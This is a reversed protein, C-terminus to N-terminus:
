YPQSPDQPNRRWGYVPEVPTTAPLMAYAEAERNGQRVIDEMAKMWLAYASDGRKADGPNQSGKLCYAEAGKQFHRSFDDPIPDLFSGLSAIQPALMQYYAIIQWVPGAAGPLPFVRFGQSMPDVVTWTVTGDTKTTGEASNAPLLPAMTGTTGFGTVILLNGNADVMNLIPNQQVQAAVLPYFTVHAGPWTGYSLQNNYMWCIQGVPSWSMGTRSLQRRFTLQTLPKPFSTNNIDIRDADEGWGINKLGVQPYDQQWSNTYFPAASARNWKWNFRESIIDALIDNAMAIAADTGYGAPQQLPTPIGKAAVRDFVQRVTITSNGM